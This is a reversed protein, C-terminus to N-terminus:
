SVLPTVWYTWCNLMKTTPNQKNPQTKPLHSTNLSFDMAKTQLSVTWSTITCSHGNARETIFVIIVHRASLLKDM